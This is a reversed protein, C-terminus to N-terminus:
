PLHPLFIGTLFTTREFYETLLKTQTEKGAGDLGDFAILTNKM